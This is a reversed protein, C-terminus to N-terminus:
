GQPYSFTNCLDELGGVASYTHNLCLLLSDHRKLLPYILRSRWAPRDRRTSTRAPTARGPAVFVPRTKKRVAAM